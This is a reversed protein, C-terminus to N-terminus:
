FPFAVNLGIIDQQSEPQLCRATGGSCSVANSEGLRTARWYVTGDMTAGRVGFEVTWGPRLGNKVTLTDGSIRVWDIQERAWLMPDVSVMGYTAHGASVNHQLRIGARGYITTYLEEYGSVGNASEIYREWWRLGLGVFPEIVKPGSTSRLGVSGEYSLGLYLTHTRLPMLASPTTLSQAFTDYAVRGFFIQFDNRLSIEPNQTSPFGSVSVGFTALPGSEKPTGQDFEERWQYLALGPSIRYELAYAEVRFLLSMLVVVGCGALKIRLM